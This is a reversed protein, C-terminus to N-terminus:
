VDVVVQGAPEGMVEDAQAFGLADGQEAMLVGV